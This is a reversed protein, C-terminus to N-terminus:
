SPREEWPRAIVLFIAFLFLYGFSFIAVMTWEHSRISWRWWVYGQPVFFLILTFYNGLGFWGFRRLPSPAPPLTMYQRKARM